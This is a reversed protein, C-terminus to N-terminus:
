WPWENPHFHSHIKGQGRLRCNGNSEAKASEEKGCAHGWVMIGALCRWCNKKM